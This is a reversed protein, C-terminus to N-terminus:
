NEGGKNVDYYSSSYLIFNVVNILKNRAGHNEGAPSGTLFMNTYVLIGM